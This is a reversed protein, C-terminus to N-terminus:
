AAAGQNALEHAPWYIGEGGPGPKLMSRLYGERKKATLTKWAQSGLPVWTMEVPKAAATPQRTKDRVVAALYTWGGPASTRREAEDRALPLIRGEFSHGESLLKEIAGVGPLDIWGTAQELQRQIESISLKAEHTSSAIAEEIDQDQDQNTPRDSLPREVTTSRENLPQKVPASRNSGNQRANASRLGNERAKDSRERAKDLEEDIRKHHLLGDRADFFELVTEKAAAWEDASMRAIGRLKRDDDPLPEGRQWYNLILLFYAGHEAASLHATDALYDGPHFPIYLNNAM